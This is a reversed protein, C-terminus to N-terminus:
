TGGGRASRLMEDRASRLEQRRVAWLCGTMAMTIWFYRQYVIPHFMAQCAAAITAGFLAASLRDLETGRTNLALRWCQNLSALMVVLLGVLGPVGAEHAVKLYMNHIGRVSEPDVAIVEGVRTAGGEPLQLGTGVVITDPLKQIARNNRNEREGISAEVYRDGEQLRTFREVVPLDSTSLFFLGVATVVLIVLGTVPNRQRGSRSAGSLLMIAFAAGVGAVASLTATMSGSSAIGVLTVGVLGLRLAMSRRGERTGDPSPVDLALLPLGVALLAAFENPHAFFGTQRGEANTAGIQMIGVESIVGILATILVGARWGRALLFLAHRDRCIARLIWFWIFTLWVFRMVVQVSGYVDWAGFSSLAGATLLLISGAMVIPSARRMEPTALDRSDGNLMQVVIVFGCALFLLDSVALSAMRTSNFGLTAMGAIALGLAAGPRAAAALPAPRRSARTAAVGAPRDPAPAEPLSGSTVLHDNGCSRGQDSGHGAASVM